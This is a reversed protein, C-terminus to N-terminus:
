LGGDIFGLLIGEPYVLDDRSDCNRAPLVSADMTVGKEDFGLLCRGAKLIGVIALPKERTRM